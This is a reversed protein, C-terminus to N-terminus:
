SRRLYRVPGSRRTEDGHEVCGVRLRDVSHEPRIAPSAARSGCRRERIHHLQRHHRRRVAPDCSGDIDSRGPRQQLGTDIRADRWAGVIAESAPCRGSSGFADTSYIIAWKKAKLQNVGFASISKADYVSSPRSRFLWPNDTETLTPDSGGFFVPIGAKKADPSLAKVQTSRVSSIVVALDGRNVLRSFALVIGPNTTQDDEIVLELKRGDIGGADNIKQVGLKAGEIQLQGVEAAAGTSPVTLGIKITDDAIATGCLGILAVTAIVGATLRRTTIM